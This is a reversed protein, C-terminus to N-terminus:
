KPADELPAAISSPPVPAGGRLKQRVNDIADSAFGDVQAFWRGRSFGAYVLLLIRFDRTIQPLKVLDLNGAFSNYGGIFMYVVLGGILAVAIDKAAEVRLDLVPRKDTLLTLITRAVGGLAGAFGALVLSLWDYGVIDQTLTSAAHSLAAYCLLWCFVVRNIAKKAM